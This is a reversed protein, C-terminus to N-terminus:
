IGKFFNNYIYNLSTYKCHSVRYIREGAHSSSVPNKNKLLIKIVKWKWSSEKKYNIIVEGNVFNYKKV